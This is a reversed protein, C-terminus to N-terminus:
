RTERLKLDDIHKREITKLKNAQGYEVVKLMHNHVMRFSGGSKKVLELAAEPSITMEGMKAGYMIVDGAGVPEFNVVEAVRSYIRRKSNLKGMLGDEGILIIPAGSAENIDRLDEIRSLHLRDAEDVIIPRPSAILRDIITRKCIGSGYPRFSTCEFALEQLFAFQSLGEWVRFLVGGHISHWNHAAMSKGRGSEGEVVMFGPQLRDSSMLGNISKRFAAVNQTEIFYNSM